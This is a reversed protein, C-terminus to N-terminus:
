KDLDEVEVQMEEIIEIIKYKNNSNNGKTKMMM